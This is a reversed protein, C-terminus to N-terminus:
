KTIYALPGSLFELVESRPFGLHALGAVLEVESIGPVFSLLLDAAQAITHTSPGIRHSASAGPLEFHIPDADAGWTGGWERWVQGLDVLADMPTTIVDFAEGYEHASTGPMATPYISRGRLFRLYLRVQEFHSRRTSTVRPQVGASGAITILERAYPVLEPVLNTLANSM